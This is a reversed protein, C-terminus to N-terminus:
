FHLSKITWSRGSKSLFETLRPNLIRGLKITIFKTSLSHDMHETLQIERPGSAHTWILLVEVTQLGDIAFSMFVNAKLFFISSFSCTLHLKQRRCPSFAVLLGATDKSEESLSKPILEEEERRKSTCLVAFM